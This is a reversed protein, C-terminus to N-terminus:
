MSPAGGRWSEAFEGASISALLRTGRPSFPRELRLLKLSGVLRVALLVHPLFNMSRSRVQRLVRFKSGGLLSEHHTQSGESRGCYEGATLQTGSHAKMKPASAFHVRCPWKSSVCDWLSEPLPLLCDFFDGCRDTVRRM